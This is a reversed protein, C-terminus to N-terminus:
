MGAWAIMPPMVTSVSRLGQTTEKWRSLESAIMARATSNRRRMSWGDGVGIPPGTTQSAQTVTAAAQVTSYMPVTTM